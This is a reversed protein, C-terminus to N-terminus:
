RLRPGDLPIQFCELVGVVVTALCDIMDQVLSAKDVAFMDRPRCWSINAHGPHRAVHVVTVDGHCRLGGFFSMCPALSWEPM